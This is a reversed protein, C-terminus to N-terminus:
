DREARLRRLWLRLAWRVLRNSEQVLVEVSRAAVDLRGRLGALQGSFSDENVADFGDFEWYGLVDYGGPDETVLPGWSQAYLDVHQPDDNWHPHTM